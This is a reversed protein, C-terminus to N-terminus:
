EPTAAVPAPKPEPAPAPAPAPEPAAAVPAAATTAAPPEVPNHFARLLFIAVAVTVLLALFLAPSFTFNGIVMLAVFATFGIGGSIAAVLLM